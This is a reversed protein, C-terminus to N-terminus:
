LTTVGCMYPARGLFFVVFFSSHLIFFSSHLLFRVLLCLKAVAPPPLVHTGPSPTASSTSSRSEASSSPYTTMRSAATRSRSPSSTTGRGVCNQMHLLLYNSVLYFCYILSCGPTARCGFSVSPSPYGNLTRKLSNEITRLRGYYEDTPGSPSGRRRYIPPSPSAGTEAWFSQFKPNAAGILDLLVFVAAVCVCVCVGGCVRARV